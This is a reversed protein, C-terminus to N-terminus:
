RNNRYAIMMLLVPVRGYVTTFLSDLTIRGKSISDNRYDYLGALHFQRGLAAMKIVHQDIEKCAMEKGLSHIEEARINAGSTHQLSNGSCSDGRKWEIELRLSVHNWM